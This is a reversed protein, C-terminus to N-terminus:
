PRWVLYWFTQSSPDQVSASTNFYDLTITNAGANSPSRVLHTFIRHLGGNADYGIQIIYDGDAVGTVTPTLSGGTHAATSPINVTASLLFLLPSGGAGFRPYQAAAFTGLADSDPAIQSGQSTAIVFDSVGAANIILAEEAGGSDEAQAIVQAGDPSNSATVILRGATDDGTDNSAEITLMKMTFGGGGDVHDPYISAMQFVGEGWDIRSGEVPGGWGSTAGTLYFGDFARIAGRFEYPDGNTPLNMLETSGDPEYGRIGDDDIEIHSGGPDGAILTNTTLMLTQLESFLAADALIETATISNAVIDPTNVQVLSGSGQPSYPGAGDADLARVKVYYTVGYTLPTADPLEKLTVFSGDLTAALTLAGPTFGSATSIHVEYQIASDNGVSEWLIFLSGVSGVVTPAGPADPVAGDSGAQAPAAIFIGQDDSWTLVEGAAAGDPAVVPTDTDGLDLVGTPISPTGKAVITQVLRTLESMSLEGLSPNLFDSM